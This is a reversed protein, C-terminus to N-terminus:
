RFGTVPDSNMEVSNVNLTALTLKGELGPVCDLVKYHVFKIGLAIPPQSLYLFFNNIRIAGDYVGM